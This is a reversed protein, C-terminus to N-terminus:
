RDQNPGPRAPLFGALVFLALAGALVPLFAFLPRGSLDWLKGGAVQAVFSLLYSGTFRVVSSGRLRRDIQSIHRCRWGWFCFPSPAPASCRRGLPSGHRRRGRGAPLRWWTCLSGSIFFPSRRGTLRQAFPTIALAAPLQSANLLALSATTLGSQGLAANYPATWLANMSFYILGGSGSLLGLHLAMLWLPRGAVRSSAERSPTAGGVIAPEDPPALALWLLLLIAVPVSWVVFTARWAGAGLVGLVVPITLGAGLAEGSIIGDTYLATALGIRSPFGIRVLSVIATQTLAIGLSLVATFVFLLVAGPWFARLAAGAALVALGVAVTGRGGIRGVLMGAPLAGLGMVLAPLAPLLGLSTHSLHLAAQIQPLIPPVALLVTRSNTGVLAILAFATLRRWAVSRRAPQDTAGIM